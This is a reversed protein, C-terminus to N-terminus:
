ARFTNCGAEPGISLVVWRLLHLARAQLETNDAYKVGFEGTSLNFSSSDSPVFPKSQQPDFARTFALAQEVLLCALIGVTIWRAGMTGPTEKSPATSSERGLL